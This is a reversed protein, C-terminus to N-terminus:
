RCIISNEILRHPAKQTMFGTQEIAKDYSKGARLLRRIPLNKGPSRFLSGM